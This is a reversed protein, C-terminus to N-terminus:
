IYHKVKPWIEQITAKPKRCLYIVTHRRYPMIFNHDFIAAEQVDNYSKEIDSKSWGFVIAIEGPKKGPGWLFYSNQAGLANPLGYKPGFYDIAGAYGYGSGIIICKSKEEPTLRNYVDAVASAMEEWGYRDAFFQPLPGLETKENKSPQIGLAQSYQIYAKTSLIPLAFPITMLGGIALGIALVPKLWQLNIKQILSEIHISGAAFLISFFPAFYYPKGNNAILVILIAFFMWGFMRYSKGPTTFLFWIIGLLWVPFLFPHMDLVESLIFQLPTMPMNKYLTANHIFELTPWGYVIQWLIHPLFILGAIAGSIWIWRSLFWRRYPTFVIGVFLGFGLFLVSIKNQLGIGLTIGLLVWYLPKETKIFLVIWYASLLWFLHDFVNMSYYGSIGLFTPCVLSSLSAVFQAYRGGGLERAFRGTLYVILAGTLVAPLRLAFLSEGLLFRSAAAILAVLPPHDVYGFDLHKSCAIYYLEDIFIGDFFNSWCVIVIKILALILLPLDDPHYFRRTTNMTM